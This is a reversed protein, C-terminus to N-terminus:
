ILIKQIKEHFDTTISMYAHTKSHVDNVSFKIVNFMLRKFIKFTLKTLRGSNLDRKLGNETLRQLIVSGYVTLAKVSQHILAWSNVDPCILNM